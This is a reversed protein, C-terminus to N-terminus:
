ELVAFRPGDSRPVSTSRIGKCVSLVGRSVSGSLIVMPMKVMSAPFLNTVRFWLLGTLTPVQCASGSPHLRLTWLMQRTCLEFLLSPLAVFGWLM